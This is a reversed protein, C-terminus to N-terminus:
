ENWAYGKPKIEKSKILVEAVEQKTNSLKQIVQVLNDFKPM